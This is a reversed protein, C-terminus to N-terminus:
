QKEDGGKYEDSLNTRKLLAKFQEEKKKNHRKTAKRQEKNIIKFIWALALLYLIFLITLTIYNM